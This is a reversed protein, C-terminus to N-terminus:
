CLLRSEFIEFRLQLRPFHLGSIHTKAIALVEPYDAHAVIPDFYFYVISRFPLASRV